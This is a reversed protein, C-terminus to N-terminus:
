EPQLAVSLQKTVLRNCRGGTGDIRVDTTDWSRYGNRTVNIAVRTGNAWGQCVDVGNTSFCILPRSESGSTVVGSLSDLRLGTVASSATLTVAPPDEPQCDVDSQCATLWFVLLPVGFWFSLRVM